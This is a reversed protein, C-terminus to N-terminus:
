RNRTMVLRSRKTVRDCTRGWAGLMVIAATSIFAIRQLKM